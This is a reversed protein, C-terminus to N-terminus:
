IELQHSFLFVNTRLWITVYSHLIYSAFAAHFSAPRLFVAIRSVRRAEYVVYQVLIM